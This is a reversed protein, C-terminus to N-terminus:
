ALVLCVCGEELGLRLRGGKAKALGSPSWEKRRENGLGFEEMEKEM